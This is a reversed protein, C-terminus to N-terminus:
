LQLALQVLHFEGSGLHMHLELLNLRLQQLLMPMCPLRRRFFRKVQRRCFELFLHLINRLRQCVEAWDIGISYVLM